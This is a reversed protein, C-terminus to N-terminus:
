YATAPVGLREAVEQAIERLLPHPVRRISEDPVPYHTSYVQVQAPRLTALAELWAQYPASSSNSVRGGILVSQIILNPLDRLGALLGECTVGPCPRNVASLTSPDGADLKMIPDDFASLADKVEPRGATTSNSFIALRVRPSIRDRLRRVEAALAAFEPHLTPEGNGSFTLCDVFRYRRLGQEVAALIQDASPFGAAIPALTKERTAGYHCYVCDFSCVKRTTPLINLGLSRGLRRSLLPGYVIENELRFIPM